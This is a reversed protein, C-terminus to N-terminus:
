FKDYRFSFAVVFIIMAVISGILIPATESGMRQVEVSVLNDGTIEANILDYQRSQFLARAGLQWELALNHDGDGFVLYFPLIVTTFSEIERNRGGNTSL